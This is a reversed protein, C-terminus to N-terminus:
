SRLKVYWFHTPIDFEDWKIEYGPVELSLCGTVDNVFYVKSARVTLNFFHGIKLPGGEDLRVDKV